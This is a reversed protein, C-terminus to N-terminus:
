SKEKVELLQPWEKRDLFVTGSQPTRFSLKFKYLSKTLTESLSESFLALSGFLARYDMRMPGLIGVSGAPVHNIRYPIAIVSCNSGPMLDGGMWFRLTNSQTCESLLQGMKATNEFLSLGTALSVPDNFEPYSLLKSFGTRHIEENSFNSYRVLYRVMIENYIKQASAEEEPSLSPKDLNKLKWQFYGELRKLAFSSLKQDSSLQETFIQGFSTILICLLRSTDIAVFKVDLIFDHDFRVATLFTPYGVANSLIEGSAHLYAAVNKTEEVKLGKLAEEMKPDYIVSSLVEEAYFRFAKDTPIRGGSAHAQKLYGEKELENFYNRLTASSLTEFGHEQLTSSGIPKGTKLYLDVLGLLAQIERTEKKTKKKM